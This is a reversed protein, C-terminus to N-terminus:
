QNREDFARSYVGLGAPTAFLKDWLTKTTAPFVTCVNMRAGNDSTEQHTILPYPILAPPRPIGKSIELPQGAPRGTCGVRRFRAAGAARAPNQQQKEHPPDVRVGAQFGRCIEVPM